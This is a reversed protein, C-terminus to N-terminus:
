TGRSSQPKPVGLVDDGVNRSPKGPVGLVDYGVNRSPINPVSLVDDGVNRSPKGPLGLVDYGVIESLIERRESTCITLFYVAATSYDFTKLRTPKRKPFDKEKDTM